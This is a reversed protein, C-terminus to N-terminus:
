MKELMIIQHKYKFGTMSWVPRKLPGSKARCVVLQNDRFQLVLYDHNM